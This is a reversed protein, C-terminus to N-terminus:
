LTNVPYRLVCKVRRTSGKIKLNSASRMFKTGCKRPWYVFHGLPWTLEAGDERETEGEKGRERGRSTLTHAGADSSAGRSFQCSLLALSVSLSASCLLCHFPLPPM